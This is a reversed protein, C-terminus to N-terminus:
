EASAATDAPEATDTPEESKEATMVEIKATSKLQSLYEQIEQSQIAMQLQSKVQEFPPPTTGRFDELLIIHWGFQTEVPEKTYAGKEMKAVADSFPAVMQQSAFWGLDGGKKGSPGTSHEKAMASFDAGTDLEAILKVAEEKEKVLIHRAKYETGGTLKEKYIAMLKEDTAPNDALHKKITASAVVARTQQRLNAAIEPSNQVGQAVGAQRALELNILEELHQAPNAKAPNQASRQTSYLDFENKTITEGNVTAVTASSDLSQALTTTPSNESGGCAGLAVIMASILTLHLTKM